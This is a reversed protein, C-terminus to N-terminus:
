GTHTSFIIQDGVVFIRGGGAVDAAIHHSTTRLLPQAIVHAHAYCTELFLGGTGVLFHNTSVNVDLVAVAGVDFSFHGAALARAKAGVIGSVTAQGNLVIAGDAGRFGGIGIASFRTGVNAFQGVALRLTFHNGADFVVGLTIGGRGHVGLVVTGNPTNFAVNLHGIGHLGCGSVGFFVDASALTVHLHLAFDLGAQTVVQGDFWEGFVGFLFAGGGGGRAFLTFAGIAAHFQDVGPVVVRFGIGIAM